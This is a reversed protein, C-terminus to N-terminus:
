ATLAALRQRLEHFGQRAHAVNRALVDAEDLNEFLARVEDPAEFPRSNMLRVKEDIDDPVLAEIVAAPLGHARARAWFAAPALREPVGIDDSTLLRALRLNMYRARQARPLTANRWAGRVLLDVPVVAAGGPFSAGVDTQLAAVLWLSDHMGPNIAREVSGVVYACDIVSGNMGQAFFREAMACQVHKLRMYCSTWVGRTTRYRGAVAFRGVSGVLHMSAGREACFACLAAFGPMWQRRLIEYQATFSTNCALHFVTDIDPAVADWAPDGHQLWRTLARFDGDLVTVRADLDPLELGYEAAARALKDRSRVM